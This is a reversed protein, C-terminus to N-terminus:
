NCIAQCTALPAGTSAATCKGGICQYLQEKCLGACDQESIGSAEPVCQGGFCQYCTIPLPLTCCDTMPVSRCGSFTVNGEYTYVDTGCPSTGACSSGSFTTSGDIAVSGAYNYIAGGQEPRRTSKRLLIADNL